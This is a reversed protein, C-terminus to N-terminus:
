DEGDGPKTRDRWYDVGAGAIRLSAGAFSPRKIPKTPIASNVRSQRTAAASELRRRSQDERYKASELTRNVFTAEDRRFDDLLAKVSLGSVGGEGAAVRAAAQAELSDRQVDQIAASDAATEEALRENEQQAQIMFANNAAEEQRRFNEKQVKAEANATQAQGAVGAITSTVSLALGISAPDCM